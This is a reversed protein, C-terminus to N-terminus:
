LMKIFFGRPYGRSLDVSDTEYGRHMYFSSVTENSIATHLVIARLGENRAIIECTDLLKSGIGIGRFRQDVAFRTFYAVQEHQSLQPFNLLSVPHFQDIPMFRLRATALIRDHSDVAVFVFGTKIAKLIDKSTETSIDLQDEPIQGLTRYTLMASRLLRLIKQVEWHMAPRISLDGADLNTLFEIDNEMLYAISM